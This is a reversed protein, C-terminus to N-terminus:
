ARNKNKKVTNDLLKFWTLKKEINASKPNIVKTECSDLSNAQEVFSYYKFISSCFDGRLKAKSEEEPICKMFDCAIINESEGLVDPSKLLDEAGKLSLGSACYDMIVYKKGSSDIKGKELGVSKLYNKFKDIDGKKRIEDIHAKKSYKYAESMPINIVNEEGIKYGLVKGVSSLSRGIIIVKYGYEGYNKDLYTKINESISEHMDLINKCSKKQFKDMNAMRSYLYRLYLKEAFNLKSYEGLTFNDLKKFSRNVFLGPCFTPMSHGFSIGYQPYTTVPTNKINLGNGSNIKTYDASIYM